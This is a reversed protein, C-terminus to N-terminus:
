VLPWPMSTKNLGPRKRRCLRMYCGTTCACAGGSPASRCHNLHVPSATLMGSALTVCSSERSSWWDIKRALERFMSCAELMHSEGCLDGLVCSGEWNVSRAPQTDHTIRAAAANSCLEQVRRRAFVYFAMPMDETTVDM